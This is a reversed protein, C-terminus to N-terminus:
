MVPRDGARTPWRHYEQAQNSLRAVTRTFTNLSASLAFYRDLVSAFLFLDRGTYREEDFTTRIEVGRGVGGNLRGTVRASEIKLLGSVAARTDPRDTLDYLTLTERVAAAAAPGGSISLHNLSLHSVLRWLSEPGLTPRATVTPPTLCRVAGVAAGGQSLQLRPQGGGFPLRSPLDRNLCTAEVHVVWGDPPQPKAERNVFTLYVESGRDAPQDPRTGADAPRRTPHYCVDATLREHRVSYLPHLEAETGDPATAIVRDVSYVENAHPRRVDPVVRYEPETNTLRIPEARRTFLNVVPTCGLRFTGANLHPELEPVATNLYVFVDLTQNARALAAPPLELDFFHFKQPFTFFETLLRYGPLSRERAPLLGEDPEFGVPRVVAADRLVPTKDDPSTAYAVQIAGRFLLEYLRNVQQSQGTLHIRFVRASLKSLPLGSSRSKFRLHLVAAASGCKPTLPATFPAARLTASAVDVPWLTVPYTTRFRCPEGQIPETEIGQGRPVSLGGVLENQGADLDLQVVAASPVPALYHPYLVGLLAEAMGAYGDDLKQRVGATLFAFGQLLREVHPDESGDPGLRLRAAVKPHSDAFRGAHGRLRALERNYYGLLDDTM